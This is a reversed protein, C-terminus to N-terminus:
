MSSKGYHKKNRLVRSPCCHPQHCNGRRKPSKLADPWRWWSCRRSGPMLTGGHAPGMATTSGPRWRVAGAAGRRRVKPRVHVRLCPRDREVLECGVIVIERTFGLIARLVKSLRM